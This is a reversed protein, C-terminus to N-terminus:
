FRFVLKGAWGQPQAVLSLLCFILPSSYTSVRTVSEASMLGPVEYIHEILDPSPM